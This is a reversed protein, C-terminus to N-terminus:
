PLLSRSFRVLSSIQTRDSHDGPTQLLNLFLQDEPSIHRRRKIMARFCMLLTKQAPELLDMDLGGQFYYFPTSEESGFNYKRLIDVVKNSVPRIGTAFFVFPKQPNRKKIRKFKKLGNISSGCIGGGCIILEFDEERNAQFKKLPICEADLEESLWQAYRKTFGTRSEYIIITRKM